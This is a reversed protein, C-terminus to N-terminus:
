DTDTIGISSGDSVDVVTGTNSVVVLQQVATVAQNTGTGKSPLALSDVRVMTIIDGIRLVDALENFYGAVRVTTVADETKYTHFGPAKGVKSNGGASQYNDRLFAM